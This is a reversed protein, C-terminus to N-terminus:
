HAIAHWLLSQNVFSWLGNLESESAESSGVVEFKRIEVPAQKPKIQKLV